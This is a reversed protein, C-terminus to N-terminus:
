AGTGNRRLRQGAPCLHRCHRRATRCLRPGGPPTTHRCLMADIPARRARMPTPRAIPRTACPRELSVTALGKARLLAILDDVCDANLRSAHLLAILAIDRGFVSQASARYWDVMRATYDLYAARIHAKAPEDMRTIADDYPESFVWDQNVFTVPAVRHPPPGSVRGSAAQRGPHRRNGSLSPPVVL